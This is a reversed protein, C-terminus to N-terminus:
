AYIPRVNIVGEKKNLAELTAEDVKGDVDILCYAIDNRNQDVMGSINLKAEGLVSTFQAIMNPVNKHAICLRTGNAPIESDMKCKPFNVSNKIAGTELFDRLQQVAMVACNDEAEPTSAGLHPMCIVNDNNLLEEAAFDTVMCAIKGSKIAALVDENNVLGGRAINIIRVGNKMNKITNASITGKTDPTEPVHVTIYDAKAFLTDMTEAHKIASNLKWAADVSLFPDYGIVNMGFEIGLNAVMAGIAGLGIVGLTKGKLEQGIFNKKGKEALGAIEAGKGALTNTWKNAAIVPRSALLLSLMVLEKVANANAGPTNFVVVGKQGLEKFPINNVGAGARAIAKVSPDLEMSLMDHSRVLIADPKVIESAIEYDDRPFNDLGKASIRDLTQIKYM